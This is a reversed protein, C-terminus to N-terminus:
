RSDVIPDVFDDDENYKVSHVNRRSRRKRGDMEIFFICAVVMLALIVLPYYCFLLSNFDILYIICLEM